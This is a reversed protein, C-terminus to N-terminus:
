KEADTVKSKEIDSLAKKLDLAIKEEETAFKYRIDALAKAAQEAAREQKQMLM